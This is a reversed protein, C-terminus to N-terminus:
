KIISGLAQGYQISSGAQWVDLWKVKQHDAFLLVVTSGLKFYGMEDGQLLLAEKANKGSYDFHQISKSRLQEGHWSTAMSGVIVAGILVMAMVGADTDFLIVLRENRAFLEPVLRATAPQVSFLRGPVYTMSKLRANLPMHIRHYDKPSLYFTAFHGQTFESAEEKSCALLSEVSYYHGKAQLIQGEVISGMESITGDVPSVIDAQALPRASAKLHRIFFDNFSAYDEPNEKVAETMNVHFRKIFDRILFNKLSPNQLSAMFGAFHSLAVKPFIYQPWTKWYDRFM